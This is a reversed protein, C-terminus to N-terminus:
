PGCGYLQPAPAILEAQARLAIEGVTVFSSSGVVLQDASNDLASSVFIIDCEYYLDGPLLNTQNNKLWFQATAKSGARTMLTLQHFILQDIVRGEAQNDRWTRTILYEDLDGGGSVLSKISETFTEGLATTDIPNAETRLKWSSLAAPYEWGNNIPTVTMEGFSEAIIPLLDAAYGNIAKIRTNCLCLDGVPSIHVFLNADTLTDYGTIPLTAACSVAVADGSMWGLGSKVFGTGAMNRDTSILTVTEPNERKLRLLGGSGLITM